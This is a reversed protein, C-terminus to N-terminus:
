RVAEFAARALGEGFRIRDETTPLRGLKPNFSIMQEMLFAPLSRDHSLGQNVTMRGSKGPTTTSEAARPASTPNFTSLDALARSFRDMLERHGTPPGELYEATETNHLALFLDVPKGSDVWDLIARRQAAIEPMSQPDVVDWNRNLDYGKVNFRVGGLAVGDPDCMPLIKFVSARRIPEAAPSLLFRIAGEAVWSTGSEWAHQRFMLWITKKPAGVGEATITLLPISRGQLTRGISTVELDRSKEYEKLLRALDANTYPPVHAIWVSDSEPTLRLRLRPETADYETAEFHRWNRGDYSYVPLTDATVAGRNPKYNYEGPLDVLDVTVERRRCGDVRFYYWNAQRNRGDQDSQGAVGCRFHAPAVQEVRGLRGGEFDTHITIDSLAEALFDYAATRAAPPFDHGGPPYIAHLAGGVHYIRDYVPLAAAVCDKVGGVAFNDDGVPASIFVARPAISALLETFDFPMRAPNKGYLEAIRPMYGKHSWGTLDGGKYKPFATFGCSTVVAKVRPDFAALFLSNHGGLSHGIVGIKDGEVEPLSRLVDVARRHNVIGKMTASAYGHAYPDFRYDGFNPYDPALTVFGREALELAYHLNGGGGVGAPEAKGIPITQHLCLVAPAKVGTKLEPILLYAPVRDDGDSRFSIRLRRIGGLQETSEVKLDVPSSDAAPLPGMVQQMSELIHSRRVLWDQQNLVPHPEGTGDVLALLHEKDKYFPAQWAPYLLAATLLVYSLQFYRM